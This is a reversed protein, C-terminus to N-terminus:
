SFDNWNCYDRAEGYTSATYKITLESDCVIFANEDQLEDDYAHKDEAFDVADLQLQENYEKGTYVFLSRSWVESNDFIKQTM